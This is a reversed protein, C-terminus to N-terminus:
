YRACYIPCCMKRSTCPATDASTRRYYFVLREDGVREGVCVCTKLGWVPKSGGGWRVLHVHKERRLREFERAVVGGCELSEEVLRGERSVGAM